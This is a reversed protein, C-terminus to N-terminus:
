SMLAQMAAPLKTISWNVHVTRWKGDILRYVQTSNWPTGCKEGGKGDPVYNILNYTVIGMDGADNVIVKTNLFDNRVINLKGEFFKRFYAEVQQRGALLGDTMPDFYTVDDSYIELAGDVDGKNWRENIYNELGLLTEKVKGVDAKMDDTIIM